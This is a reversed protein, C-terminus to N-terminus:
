LISFDHSCFRQVGGRNLVPYFEQVGKLPTSVKQAGRKLM